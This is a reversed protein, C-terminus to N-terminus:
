MTMSNASGFLENRLGDRQDDDAVEILGWVLDVRYLDIEGPVNVAYVGSMVKRIEYEAANTPDDGILAAVHGQIAPKSDALLVRDYLDLFETERFRQALDRLRERVGPEWVRTFTSPSRWRTWEELTAAIVPRVDAEANKEQVIEINDFLDDDGLIPYLLQLAKPGTMPTSMAQELQAIKEVTNPTAWTGM